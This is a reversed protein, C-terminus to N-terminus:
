QFYADIQQRSMIKKRGVQKVVLQGRQVM